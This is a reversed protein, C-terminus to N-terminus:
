SKAILWPWYFKQLHLLISIFSFQQDNNIQIDLILYPLMAHCIRANTIIL